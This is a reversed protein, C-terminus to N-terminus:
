TDKVGLQDMAQIIEGCLAVWDKPPMMIMNMAMDPGQMCMGGDDTRYFVVKLVRSNLSAVELPEAQINVRIFGREEKMAELMQNPLMNKEYKQYDPEPLPMAAKKKAEQERRYEEAISPDYVLEIKEEPEPEPEAKTFDERPRGLIREEPKRDERRKPFRAYLEPAKDRCRYKINQYAKEPNGYGQGKLYEIPDAGNEMAEVLKLAVEEQKNHKMPKEGREDARLCGWSCFWKKPSESKYRWLEPWLADFEKGCQRCRKIM